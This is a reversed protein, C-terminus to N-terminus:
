EFIIFANERPVTQMKLGQLAMCRRYIHAVLHGCLAADKVLTGLAWIV